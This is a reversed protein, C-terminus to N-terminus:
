MGITGNNDAAVAGRLGTLKTQLASIEKLDDPTLKSLIAQAQPSLSQGHATLATHINGTSAAETLVDNLAQGDSAGGAPPPGSGGWATTPTAARAAGSSVGLAALLVASKTLFKRRGHAEAENATPPVSDDTTSM